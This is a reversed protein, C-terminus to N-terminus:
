KQIDTWEKSNSMFWYEQKAEKFRRWFYNRFTLAVPFNHKDYGIICKPNNYGLDLYSDIRKSDVLNCTFIATHGDAVIFRSHKHIWGTDDDKRIQVLGRIDSDVMPMKYIRDPKEKTLIRVDVGREVANAIANIVNKDSILPCKIYVKRTAHDIMWAIEKSIEKAPRMKYLSSRFDASVNKHIKKTAYLQYTIAPDFENFHSITPFLVLFSYLLSRYIANDSQYSEYKYDGLVHIDESNSSDWNGTSIIYKGGDIDAMSIMHIDQSEVTLFCKAHVRYKKGIAHNMVFAGNEKLLKTLEENAKKSGVVSAEIFIFLKKGNSLADLLATKLTNEINGRYITMFVIKVKSNYLERILPDRVERNYLTYPTSVIKM